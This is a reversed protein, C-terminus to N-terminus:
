EGPVEREQRLRQVTPHVGNRRESVQTVHRDCGTLRTPQCAAPHTSVQPGERERKHRGRGGEQKSAKTTQHIGVDRSSPLPLPRPPNPQGRVRPQEAADNQDNERNDAETRTRTRTQQGDVHGLPVHHNGRKRSRNRPRQGSRTRRRLAPTRTTMSPPSTATM